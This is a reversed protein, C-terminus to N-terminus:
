FLFALLVLLGFKLYSSADEKKGCDKLTYERSLAYVTLKEQAEDKITTEKTETKLAGTGTVCCSMSELEVDALRRLNQPEEQTFDIQCQATVAKGAVTVPLDFKIEEVDALARLMQEGDFEGDVKWCSSTKECYFTPDDEVPQFTHTTEPPTPPVCPIKEEITNAGGINETWNAINIGVETLDLETPLAIKSTVPYIATDILCGIYSHQEDTDIYCNAVYGQPEQLAIDFNMTEEFYERTGWIYFAFKGQEVYCETYDHLIGPPSVTFLPVDATIALVLLSLFFIAKM